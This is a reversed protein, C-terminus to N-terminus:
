NPGQSLGVDTINEEIDIRILHNNSSQNNQKNIKNWEIIYIHTQKISITSSVKNEYLHQHKSVLHAREIRWNRFKM